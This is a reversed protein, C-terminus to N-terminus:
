EAIFFLSIKDNALLHISSLVDNQALYALSLLGFIMHKGEYAAKLVLAFAAINNSKPWMVIPSCMHSTHPYTFFGFGSLMQHVWELPVLVSVKIHCLDVHSPAWSATYLDTLSSDVQTTVCKYM